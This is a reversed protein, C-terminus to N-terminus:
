DTETPPPIKWFFGLIILFLLFSLDVASTFPYGLKQTSGFKLQDSDYLFDAVGWYCKM